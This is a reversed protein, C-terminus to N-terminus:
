KRYWNGGNLLGDMQTKNLGNTYFYAIYKKMKQVTEKLGELLGNIERDTWM